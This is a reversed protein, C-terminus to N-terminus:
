DSKRPSLRYEGCWSDDNVIPWYEVSRTHYCEVAAPLVPSLYYMTNNSDEMKYEPPMTPPYRRCLGTGNEDELYYLCYFCSGDLLDNDNDTSIPEGM